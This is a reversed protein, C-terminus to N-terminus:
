FLSEMNWVEKCGTVAYGEALLKSILTPVEEKSITVLARNEKFLVEYSRIIESAHIGAATIEYQHIHDNMLTSVEGSNVLRGNKLVFLKDCLFLLQEMIHSSIVIAIGKEHALKLILERLAVTGLPDLGSFPEDLILSKPSNLLAIAIGLRQKMGMSYKSVVYKRDASLGVQNLQEEIFARHAPLGQIRAFISLNEVANLYPYLSPKEIIGGVPKPSNSHIAITGSTASVLGTIIKFLTSKGAGNAGLVGCIEGAACSLDM